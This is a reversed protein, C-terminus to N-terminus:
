CANPDSTDPNLTDVDCIRVVRTGTDPGDLCCTGQIVGRDMNVTISRSAQAGSVQYAVLQVFVFAVVHYQANNGNALGDVRDFVPLPFWTHNDLLTQLANQLSGSFAGPNAHIDDGISVPDPFGNLLWDATDSNSNNGSGLALGWNGAVNGGSDLCPDPQSNSLTITLPSTTPGAPGNPLDLWQELGATATICLAIPRLGIAGSPIGWLATTTSPVTHNQLGFIGAFTFEATTHGQVTVHGRKTDTTSPQCSDLSADGRNQTLLTPAGGAACGDSGLAFHGATGLAAADTATVMNRRTQWLNGTDIAYAVAAILLPALIAVIVAVAGRENHRASVRV